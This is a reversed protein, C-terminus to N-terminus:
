QKGQAETRLRTISQKAETMDPWFGLVQQYSAIAQAYDKNRDYALALYFTARGSDPYLTHALAFIEIAERYRKQELFPEGWSILAREAPKFGPASKTMGGYAEALNAHKRSAFEGALTALTPPAGEARHVDVSLLHPPVSNAKPASNLFKLAPADNKLYADLFALVYKEMWGYALAAEDRTYDGFRQEPGLRLAESQFAAHEMTYMTVNYLDSYKMQNLLSYTPIQKNRNMAEATSPKGGLYLMPLALREPTAYSAAQVIAPFYRVSGDLAVLAGIRDDRAAALVNALGGFSYGVVAIRSGDAQPLAAGYGALFSIDAAQAEAGELDITMGRTNVGMSASALVIYGQSALYECLDANEHAASSSGPAYIVVPFKGAAPAADRVALMTQGTESRSQDANLNAYNDSLGTAVDQGVEADTRAFTTETAASRLYDGYHLQKGATKKSPYWILTQLPRAREGTAPAGSTLDTKHRFVRAHDYQQAVRFGVGYTGPANPSSFNAAGAAGAATWLLVLLIRHM